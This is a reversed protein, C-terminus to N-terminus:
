GGGIVYDRSTHLLCEQGSGKVKSKVNIKGFGFVSGGTGHFLPAEAGRLGCSLFAAEAASAGGIVYDRSTHLPCEQGSGKVKIKGSARVARQVTSLFFIPFPVHEVRGCRRGVLLVAEAASARQRMNRM